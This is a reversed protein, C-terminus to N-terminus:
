SGARELNTDILLVNSDYTIPTAYPDDESPWGTFKADSFLGWLGGYYMSIVPVQEYMVQQLQGALEEQEALDTAAQYRALLEDVAPDSFRQYNSSAASGVPVAFESNLLQNMDRYFSGTGGFGGMALQFDGNNVAQQYAAPQPQEITVAIGVAQLQRQVEQVGRLWDTYGNATTISLTVQQGDPGVLQDGRQTYGAQAFAALAADVDQAVEGGEPVDEDLLDEQGPLILGSQPAADTYGRTAAESIAERDLALSLGRRFDVSDFPAETLNPLLSITGGPPFWYTNGENATVWTDEVDEIYAYAWDYGNNVLDLQENSAPIVLEDAAVADAQWYDPNKELTYQTDTYTGLTFPGTGVPDEDAYSVPDDVDAWLHEPVIVTGGVIETAPVDPESFRVTVDMGDAEVSDLRQWVGDLDLAPNDKLMQFTFTVDDATFPEGDTWTVGERLTFVATQPDVQEVSEALFPTSEGDVTNLVTLPEYIHFAGKRGTPNYPNFNRTFNPSGNDGAFLMTGAADGGEAGQPAQAGMCGSVVLAAALCVGTATAVRGRRDTTRM